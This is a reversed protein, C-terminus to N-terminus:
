RSKINRKLGEKMKNICIDDFKLKIGSAECGKCRNM